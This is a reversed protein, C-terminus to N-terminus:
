MLRFEESRSDSRNGYLYRAMTTYFQGNEQFMVRCIEATKANYMPDFWEYQWVSGLELPFYDDTGTPISWNTLEMDGIWKWPSVVKVVGVGPALWVTWIGASDEKGEEHHAPVTTLKLCNQFTGACVTVVESDSEVKAVCESKTFQWTEGTLLRKLPLKYVGRFAQEFVENNGDSVCIIKRSGSGLQVFNDVAQFIEYGLLFSTDKPGRPIDESALMLVDLTAITRTLVIKEDSEIASAIAQVAQNFASEWNNTQVADFLSKQTISDKETDGQVNTAALARMRQTADARPIAGASLSNLVTLVEGLTQQVKRTFEKGVKHEKLGLEVMKIMQGKLQQRAKYLRGKVTSTPVDLFDSIERYSLGDLYYLTLVTGHEESLSNLATMLMQHQEERELQELPLEVPSAKNMAEDIPTHHRRKRLWMRCVNVAVRRPWGAFRSQDKLQHLDLYARIFVEQALDEADAFNKTMQFAIGYVAGQYKKVLSSYAEVDGRLTQTVLQADTIM